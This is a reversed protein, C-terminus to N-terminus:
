YNGMGIKSIDQYKVNYTMRWYFEDFPTVGRLSGNNFFRYLEVYDYYKKLLKDFHERTVEMM